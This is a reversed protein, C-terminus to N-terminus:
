DEVIVSFDRFSFIKAVVVVGVFLFDDAVNVVVYVLVLFDDAEVCASDSKFVDVEGVLAKVAATELVAAEDVQM